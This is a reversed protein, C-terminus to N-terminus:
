QEQTVERETFIQAPRLIKEFAFFEESIVFPFRNGFVRSRPYDSFYLSLNFFNLINEKIFVFTEEEYYEWFSEPSNVFSIISHDGERTLFNFVNKQITRERDEEDFSFSVMPDKDPFSCGISCIIAINQKFIEEQNEDVDKIKEIDLILNIKNGEERIIIYEYKKQRLFDAISVFIQRQTANARLHFPIPFIKYQSFDGSLVEENRENPITGDYNMDFSRDDDEQRQEEYNLDFSEDEDLQQQPVEGDYNLDFERNQSLLRERREQRRQQFSRNSEELPNM